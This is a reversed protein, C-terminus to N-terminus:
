TGEPATLAVAHCIGPISEGQATAVPSHLAGTPCFLLNNWRGETLGTLLYGTFVAASCGCGSGGCHVDQSKQDFLLCGCDAHNELVIGRRELLELLLQVVGAAGQGGGLRAIVLASVLVKQFVVEILDAGQPGLM